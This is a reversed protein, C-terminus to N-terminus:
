SVGNAVDRADSKKDFMQAPPDDVLRFAGLQLSSVFRQLLKFFVALKLRSVFKRGQQRPHQRLIEIIM